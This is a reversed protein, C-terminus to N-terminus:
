GEAREIAEATGAKSLGAALFAATEPLEVHLGSSHDLMLTADESMLDLVHGGGTRDSTIFHLHYGGVSIGQAYDPSRFGAITGTVNKFEFTAQEQVVETLPRYPKVQRQVTRTVVRLFHGDLRIAYFINQSPALEDLLAYLESRMLSRELRRSVEPRFFTMVAFPTKQMPDVVHATGDSRLQFFKGDIAIMEGDLDNFTGLGFDGHQALEAYTVEGEYVGELLASMM